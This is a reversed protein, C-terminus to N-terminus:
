LSLIEDDSTIKAKRGRKRKVVTPPPSPLPSCVTNKDCNSDSSSDSDESEDSEILSDREIIPVLSLAPETINVTIKAKKPPPSPM